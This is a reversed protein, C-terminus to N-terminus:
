LMVVGRQVARVVAETRTSAHLKGLVANVHFKATHASIGLRDAIQKNSLGEAMLQVVEHERHTLGDTVIAVPEAVAPPQLDSDGDLVRLGHRVAVLTSALAPTESERGIVAAVGAALLGFRSAGRPALAVVPVPLASVQGGLDAETAADPGWAPGLDWLVVNADTRTIALALDDACTAEGAAVPGLRAHLSHRVIPDDAVVLARPRDIETHVLLAELTLARAAADSGSPAFSTTPDIRNL